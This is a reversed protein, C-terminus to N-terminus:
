TGNDAFRVIDTLGIEEFPKIHVVVKGDEYADISSIVKKLGENTFEGQKVFDEITKFSKRLVRVFDSKDYNSYTYTKKYSELKKIESVLDKTNETVEDLSIIGAKFLETEKDRLIKLEKLQDNM